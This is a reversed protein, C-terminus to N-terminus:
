TFSLGLMLENRDSIVHVTTDQGLVWSKFILGVSTKALPLKSRSFRASFNNQESKSDTMCKLEAPGQDWLAM